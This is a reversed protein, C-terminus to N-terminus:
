EEVSYVVYTENRYVIPLALPYDPRTVVYDFQYRTALKRVRSTGLEGISQCWPLQPHGGRKFVDYLRRRWELLNVPDQPVDKYTVVEGREAHWKFSQSHRPTLFLSGPATNERVWGCLVIWDAPSAMKADSHSTPQDHQSWTALVLHQGTIALAVALLGTALPSQRDFLTQLVAVLLAAVAVPVAVDTLRFWYFRLLGAARPPDDWLLWEIALGLMALTMAGCAFLALKGAADHRLAGWSGGLDGRRIWLLGALLTVVMAHRGARNAIWEPPKHLPALHHPLREFVYIEAAESTVETSEGGGLSLAPVVGFMALAGGLALGPLFSRLPVERRWGFLWLVLLILVSWGGVLVHWASAIGLYVWARNWKGVIWARLGLLVFLYAIPKAEFGGILWEGAFNGEAIGTVVVAAGLAAYLPRPVVTWSLRWWAWALAAWTALRGLWALVPLSLGNTLWAFTTVFTLHADRSELFLDGECYSADAAHQLRCLYHPENAGPPPGGSAIFFLCLILGMELGAQWPPHGDNPSSDKKM